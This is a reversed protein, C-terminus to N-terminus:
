PFHRRAGPAEGAADQISLGDLHQGLECPLQFGAGGGQFRCGLGEGMIGSRSHLADLVIGITATSRPRPPWVFIVLRESSFLLSQHLDFGVWGINPL